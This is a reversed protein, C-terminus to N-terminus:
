FYDKYWEVFMRLGTAIDTAPVFGVDAMLDSVDAATAPVDGPQMPLMKKIAKKGLSAELVEIFRLLEVPTHNGINYVRWPARSSGPDPSAGEWVPNGEATKDLVRLVGEVVDDIYTFDRQMKGHNYVDIPDGALIAKAFKFYAMDPRGWPGYVTFFRLGTTPLGYLHSYTHAMLENAKKSAAYLSVPHDVNDHVSFPMTENAGYVSSSSAYVLHKVQHHRCGELINLFGVINSDIYAHPNELSYRVGAQAALNVVKDFKESSFLNEMGQRDAIDLKLFRFGKRDVLRALRAEKLSVDYYDNLNDIGVVEDGRGLLGHSVFSGIFGAAGTVLIKSM